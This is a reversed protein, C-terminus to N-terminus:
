ELEAIWPKFGIRQMWIAYDASRMEEARRKALCLILGELVNTGFSRGGLNPTTTVVRRVGRARLDDIDKQTLTNTIVVKGELSDPLYRNIYHWDGAVVEAWAYYSELGRLRVKQQNGTPYLWKFPLRTVVPLVVTAATQMAKLSRVPVPVGLGFLFDGYVLDAHQAALEEAMGFRDVSSVLLVRKDRWAWTEGLVRITERELTNKLGSGDAVPSKKALAALKRADRFAYRRAGAYVYLDIGGLGFADVRGDMDAILQAAKDLDGDTGIREIKVQQGLINETVAHNRDSAGLSVSVIHKM